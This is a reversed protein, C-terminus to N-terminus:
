NCPQARCFRPPANGHRSVVLQSRGFRAADPVGNGLHQALRHKQQQDRRAAVPMSSPRAPAASATDNKRPRVALFMIAIGPLRSAYVIVRPALSFCSLSRKQYRLIISDRDLVLPLIFLSVVEAIQQFATTPFRSSHIRVAPWKGGNALTRWASGNSALKKCPYEPSLGSTGTM